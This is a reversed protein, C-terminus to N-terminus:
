HQEARDGPEDSRRACAPAPARCGRACRASRSRRSDRGGARLEHERVGGARRVERHAAAAPRLRRRPPEARREGGAQRPRRDLAQTTAAASAGPRPPPAPTSSPTAPSPSCGPACTRHWAEFLHIKDLAAVLADQVIDDAEDPRPRALARLPAFEADDGRDRASVAAPRRPSSASAAPDGVLGGGPSVGHAKGGLRSGRRAAAPRTRAPEVDLRRRCICARGSRPSRM